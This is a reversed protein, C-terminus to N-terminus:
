CEEFSAFFVEDVAPAPAAAAWFGAYATYIGTGPLASVPEAITGALRFCLNTLTNTSPALTHVDISYTVAQGTAATSAGLLALAAALHLPGSVRSASANM